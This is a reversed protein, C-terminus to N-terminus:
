ARGTEDSLDVLCECFLNTGLAEVDIDLLRHRRHELRQAQALHRKRVTRHYRRHAHIRGHITHGAIKMQHMVSRAGEPPAPKITVSIVQTLRSARMVGPQVPSHFSSCSAAQRRMTSKTWALEAAFIPRCSPWAPRLPAVLSIHSPMSRGNSSPPQSM